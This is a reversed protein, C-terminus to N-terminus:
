IYSADVWDAYDSGLIDSISYGSASSLITAFDARGDDNAGDGSSAYEAFLVNDTREDGSNWIRWGESNILNGLTNSTFVVRAYERWPRGLYVKGSLDDSASDATIINSENIVYISDGDSSERGNATIYGAGASAITCKHFFACADQGFIYDTAGEIYSSGYFQVGSQALVTDQWSVFSVGYYASSGYASLALAQGDSSAQGFSNVLNVNYLAFKDTHVRLTATEDNNSVEGASTAQTITVTNGTYSSADSTEGQITTFGSRDIYVQENYTGAYIFIIQDTDDDPLADVAAQVTSYDGDGGVVLAGDPPSDARRGLGLTRAPSAFASSVVAAFACLTWSLQLM